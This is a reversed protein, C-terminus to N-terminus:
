ELRLQRNKGPQPLQLTGETAALGKEGNGGEVLVVLDGIYKKMIDAHSRMDEAASSLEEANAANHQTVTDMEAVAKNVNGIGQSQEISANSIEGILQTVNHVKMAADRYKIDTEKVLKSGVVIKGIIEKIMQQTNKSAEASSLALQRVESAVVAFGAGAEGARAAEVAANLALLNTKFSIEDITKVIKSVNESAASTAEMNQILEKMSENASKLNVSGETSLQRVQQANNENGKTMSAIEELAASTEELSAAQQTTKEALQESFSSVLRSANSMQQASDTLSTIARNIPTSLSNSFFLALPITLLVCIIYILTLLKIMQWANEWASESSLLPTIIGVIGKDDYLPLAGQYYNGKKLSVENMALEQKGQNWTIEKGQVTRVEINKYEPLDGASLGKKTFINIKMGTLSALKSVTRNDLKQMVQMVGVQCPDATQKEKNICTAAVPAYAVLYLSNEVAEVVTKEVNPVQSELKVATRIGAFAAVEKWQSYNIEQGRRVEQSRFSAPSSIDTGYGVIYTESDKQTAFFVLEGRMSYFAIRSINGAVALQSLDGTAPKLTEETQSLVTKKDRAENIIDLVFKAQSGKDNVKSAQMAAELLKQQSVRLDEQIIKISKQIQENSAASNQTKLVTVVAILSIVMVLILIVIPGFLLKFKISKRNM